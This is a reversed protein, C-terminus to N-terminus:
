KAKVIKASTAIKTPRKKGGDSKEKNDKTISADKEEIPKSIKNKALEIITVEANDGLRTGAKYTRIFGSPIDKYRVILDEMVKKTANEDFLYSLLKRRGNLDNKKAYNILHEVIPKVEKAKATTTTIREYLILSTALNRLTSTRHAKKRSLSRM